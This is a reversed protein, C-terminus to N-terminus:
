KELGIHDVYTKPENLQTHHDKKAILHFQSTCNKHMRNHKQWLYLKVLKILAFKSYYTQKILERFNEM